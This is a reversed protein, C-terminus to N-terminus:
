DLGAESCSRGPVHRAAYENQVAGCDIAQAPHGMGEIGAANVQRCRRAGRADPAGEVQRCARFRPPGNGGGGERSRRVGGEGKRRYQSSM